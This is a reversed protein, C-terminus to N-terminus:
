QSNNDSTGLRTLPSDIGVIKGDHDAKFIIPFRARQNQLSLDVSYFYMSGTDLKVGGIYDYHVFQLGASRQSSAQAQLTAKSAGNALQNAQYDTSYSDWMMDANFNQQGKIYTEVAAAPPLSEARQFAVPAAKPAWLLYSMWGIVGLLALIVVIFAAYPRLARGLLTMGYLLRRLLLRNMRRFRLWRGAKVPPPAYYPAQPAPYVPQYAVPAAVAQQPERTEDM